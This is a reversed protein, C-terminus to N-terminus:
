TRRESRTHPGSSSRMRASNPGRGSRPSRNELSSSRMAARTCGHGDEGDGVADVREREDDERDDQRDGQEDRVPRRLPRVVRRLEPGRVAPDGAQLVAERDGAVVERRGREQAEGPEDEQEADVAPHAQRRRARREQGHHQQEGLAHAVGALERHGVDQGEAQALPGGPDGRRQAGEDDGEDVEDRLHDARAHQQLRERAQVERDRHRDGADEHEDVDDEAPHEGRRPHLDDLGPQEHDRSGDERDQHEALRSEVRELQEAARRVVVGVPVLVEGRAQLVRVRDVRDGEPQRQQEAGGPQRMQEHAEEGHGVRLRGAARDGPADQEDPHEERHRHEDAHASARDEAVHGGRVRRAAVEHRRQERLDSPPPAPDTPPSRNRAIM